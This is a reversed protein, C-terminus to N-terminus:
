LAFTGYIKIVFLSKKRLYSSNHIFILIKAFQLLFVTMIVFSFHFYSDYVTAMM